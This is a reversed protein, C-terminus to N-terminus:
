YKFNIIRQIMVWGILYLFGVVLAAPWFIPDGFKSTYYDPSTMTFFAVLFVPLVSLIMASAKGESALAKVRKALTLRGRIVAALGELIEALNGGTEAQISISVAFFHADGSGTREAFSRLADKFDAGYTTEDVMLGFESGIPDAMEHAALQVASVVPHGARLARNVVDLALPLQEELKKIRSKRKGDVFVWAGLFSVTCAGLLSMPAAVVFGARASVGLVILSGMWLVVAVAATIIILRLPSITLGAQRFYTSLRDLYHALGDRSLGPKRVLAAFVQEHSMGSELMTLRRNIRQVQDRTSFVTL